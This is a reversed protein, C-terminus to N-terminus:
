KWEGELQFAAWFYPDGHWRKQAWMHIQAARLAAAPPLDKKLMAEYFASMFEATAADDVPWLSAMVRAAGAYMFGRALGVLGEGRIDKGLATQCGSLVVLDAPLRLNYIDWLRLFGDQPKGDRGVLSLVVGSLAPTRSNMISHTAFHIVRYQALEPSMAASRTAQFDLGEWSEGPVSDSIIADAERRSFPLRPIKWGTGSLAVEEWSRQLDSPVHPSYKRFSASYRIPSIHLRLSVRPDDSNFVPDAFVAVAKHAPARGALERRLVAVVSASPANVVESAVILPPGHGDGNTGPAPLAAFPIYQLVGDSVVLLRKYHLLPALPGLIMDSLRAAAAPYEARARRMRAQRRLESDGDVQENRTTLLEHVRRAAQEIQARGPLIFSALSSKTVAWLYSRDEGLKYELLLTDSDLVSQQIETLELPVPQTLATYHPSTRRLQAETEDYQATLEQLQTAVTNAEAATHHRSLLELQYEFRAQLRQRLMREQDLLKPDVDRHVDLRAEALMDLLSRARARESAHLADAELHMEMLLAIYFDYSKQVTAFYSSRSESEAIGARVSELLDLGAEVHRRASALQGMSREARAIGCLAFAQGQLDKIAESEAFSQQYYELAKRSNGANEYVSAIEQIINRRTRNKFPWISFAPKLVDLAKQWNGLHHYAIGAHYLSLAEVVPQHHGHFYPVVQDFCRLAKAYEGQAVYFEGLRRLAWMEDDQNGRALILSQRYCAFAKDREGAEAYADGLVSLLTFELGQDHHSRALHLAERYYALATQSEGLQEYTHGLDYLAYYEGGWGAVRRSLTLAQERDNLAHQLEGITEYTDGRNSLLRAEARRDRLARRLRLAENLSDLAEESRGLRGLDNAMDELTGAEMEVDGLTQWLARASELNRIASEYDRAVFFILALTQFAQAEGRSDDAARFLSIARQYGSAWQDGKPSSRFSQRYAHILAQNAAVRINDRNTAEQLENIQITYAEPPLSADAGPPSTDNHLLQLGIHYVGSVMPLYYMSFRCAPGSLEEIKKDDPAVVVIQVNSALDVPAVTFRLLQGSALFLDYVHKQGRALKSNVAPGLQLIAATHEPPTPDSANAHGPCTGVLALICLAICVPLATSGRVVCSRNQQVFHLFAEFGRITLGLAYAM